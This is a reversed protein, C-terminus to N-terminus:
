ARISVHFFGSYFLRMEWCLYEYIIQALSDFQRSVNESNSYFILLRVSKIRGLYDACMLWVRILTSYRISNSRVHWVLFDHLSKSSKNKPSFLTWILVTLATHCDFCIVNIRYELTSNHQYKPSCFLSNSSKMLPPPPSKNNLLGM